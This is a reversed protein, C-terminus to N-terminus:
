RHPGHLEALGAELKSRVSLLVGRLEEEIQGRLDAPWQGARDMRGAVALTETQMTSMMSWLLGRVAEADVYRGQATKEARVKAQADIVASVAQAAERMESASGAVGAPRDSLSQGGAQGGLGALRTVAAMRAERESRAARARSILHDLVKAAEFEWPVGMDGRSKIPLTPDGEIILKLNRWTMGAVTAMEEANLTLSKKVKKRAAELKALSAVPDAPKRQM